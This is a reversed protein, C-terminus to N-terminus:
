DRFTPYPCNFNVQSSKFNSAAHLARSFFDAGSISVAKSVFERDTVNYHNTSTTLPQSMHM